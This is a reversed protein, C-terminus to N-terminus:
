GPQKLFKNASVRITDLTAANYADIPKKNPYFPMQAEVGESMAIKQGVAAGLEDVLVVDDGDAREAELGITSYPIALVFRLGQLSAHGRCLTVTGIVEAIRM